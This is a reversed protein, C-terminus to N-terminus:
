RWRYILCPEYINKYYADIVDILYKGVGVREGNLIRRRTREPTLDDKVERAIDKVLEVGAEAVFGPHRGVYAFFEKWREISDGFDERAEPKKSYTENACFLTGILSIALM